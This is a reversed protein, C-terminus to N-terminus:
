FVSGLSLREMSAISDLHSRLRSYAAAAGGSNGSYLEGLYEYFADSVADIESHRVFVHTYADMAEWRDIASSLAEAAAASEGRAALEAAEDAREGLENMLGGIYHVNWLSLALLLTLLGLGLYMKRM